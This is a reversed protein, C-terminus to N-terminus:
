EATPTLTYVAIDLEATMVADPNVSARVVKLYEVAMTKFGNSELLELYRQIQQFDGSAEVSLHFVLFVRNAIQEEAWPHSYLPVGNVGAEDALRLVTNIITTSDTEGTFVNEAAALEAKATALREKVDTPIDPLMALVARLGSLQSLLAKTQSNQRLYGTGWFLYVALVALILLAVLWKWIKM